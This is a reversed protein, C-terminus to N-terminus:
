RVPCYVEMARHLNIVAGEDDHSVAAVVAGAFWQLTLLEGEPGEFDVAKRRSHMGSQIGAAILKKVAAQSRIGDDWHEKIETVADRVLATLQANMQKM